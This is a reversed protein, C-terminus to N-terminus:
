SVKPKVFINRYGASFYLSIIKHRQIKYTPVSTAYDSTCYNTWPEKLGNTGIILCVDM